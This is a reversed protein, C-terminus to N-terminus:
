NSHEDLFEDLIPALKRLSFYHPALKRKWEPISAESDFSNDIQGSCLAVGASAALAISKIETISFLFREAKLKSLASESAMEFITANIPNPIKIYKVLPLAVTLAEKEAGTIQLEITTAM